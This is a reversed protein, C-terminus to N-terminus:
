RSSRAARAGAVPGHLRRPRRLGVALEVVNLASTPASSTATAGASRRSIIVTCRTSRTPSARAPRRRRGRQYTRAVDVYQRREALPAEINSRLLAIEAEAVRGVAEGMTRMLQLVQEEASSRRRATRVARFMEVDQPASAASSRGRIPSGPAAGSRRARVDPDIEARRRPRPSRRPRRTRDAADPVRRLEASRGTRRGARARPDVRRDRRPPVRVVRATRRADPDAPDYLGAAVLDDVHESVLVAGARRREDWHAARARGDVAVAPAARRAADRRGAREVVLDPDLAPARVTSGARCTGCCRPGRATGACRSRARGAGCRSTTRPSPAASGSPGSGPCCRSRRPGARARARRADRRARGAAALEAARGAPGAIPLRAWMEVAEEDFGWAELAVFADASPPALLLDARAADVESQLPEPLETRLGRDLMRDWARGVADADALARVDVPPARDLAVRVTTRHPVPFVLRNSTRSRARAARRVRAVSRGTSACVTTTSPWSVRRTSARVRGRDGRALRERGRRRRRRRRRRGGRVRARDRRRGPHAGGDARGAGPAPRSQRTTADGGPCSGTTGAASRAVRAAVAGSTCRAARRRGRGRHGTTLTGVGVM